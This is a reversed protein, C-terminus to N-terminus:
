INYLENLKNGLFQYKEISKFYEETRKKYESASYINPNEIKKSLNSIIELLINLTNILALCYESLLKPYCKNDVFDSDMIIKIKKYYQKIEFLMETTKNFLEDYNIAKFIFPIPTIKRLSFKFIEDHITIYKDLLENLAISITIIENNKDM